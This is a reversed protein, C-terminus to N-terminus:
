SINDVVLRRTHRAIMLDEDTPVVRVECASNPASIVDAHEVNRKPDLTVGLHELGRCIEARVPAARDGIGGTFVLTDLGNLVAAFAGIFKRVHYCYMDVAQAAHPERARQDLLTKMDSTLGSVGALGAERDLLEELQETKW